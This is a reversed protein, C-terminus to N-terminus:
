VALKAESRNCLHLLRDAFADLNAQNFPNVSDIVRQARVRYEGLTADHERAAKLLQHSGKQADFAPYYYGADLWPSNHVLPYGGYLADLYLYNQDNGWQHSVIADAFQSMFGVIDNRGHFTAKGDKVIDLSNAMHTLTPHDKMHMSNLVHMHSVSSRDARYAEECILMPISSTKVVSINPEFMAVRFEQASAVEARPRYGYQLGHENVEAIRRELFQPHWIFPVLHVDCRHLTRMMPVSLRDKPMLWIEDYRDPRMVHVPKEFVPAEILGVYPQGCCYYVVKKGRARMLDLWPTDLAGGMEFIVDVADTADHTRMIRLNKSLTDVQPPMANQDGVDILSITEVFPLKQLAEALFIVNQGLGNQWINQGQHTVVSIGIRIKM